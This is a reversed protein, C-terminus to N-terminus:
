LFFLKHKIDFCIKNSRLVGLSSLLLSLYFLPQVQFFFDINQVGM